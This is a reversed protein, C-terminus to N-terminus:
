LWPLRAQHRKRGREIEGFATFCRSSQLICVHTEVHRDRLRSACTRPRSVGVKEELDAHVISFKGVCSGFGQVLSDDVAHSSVHQEEGAATEYYLLLDVSRQPSCKSRPWKSIASVAKETDGNLVPVLVALRRGRGAAPVGVTTAIALSGLFGFLLPRRGTTGNRGHRPM